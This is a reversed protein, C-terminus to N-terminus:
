FTTMSASWFGGPYSTGQQSAGEVCVPTTVTRWSSWPRDGHVKKWNGSFSFVEDVEEQDNLRYSVGVVIIVWVPIDELGSRYVILQRM